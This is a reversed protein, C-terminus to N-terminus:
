AHGYNAETYTQYEPKCPSIIIFVKSDILSAIKIERRDDIKAFDNPGLMAEDIEIYGQLVYVSLVADEPCDLTHFGASFSDIEISIDKSHLKHSTNQGNLIRSTRNDTKKMLFSDSGYCKVSPSVKRCQEADPNFWIQLVESRPHFKEAHRIGKGAQIISMDGEDLYVWKDQEKNYTEFRGSLVYNMIEFGIHPHESIVCGFDSTLHSWYFISSYPEVPSKEQPFGVVKQERIGGGHAIKELQDRSTVIKAGM